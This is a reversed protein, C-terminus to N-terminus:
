GHVSCRGGRGQVWAAPHHVLSLGPVTAKCPKGSKTFGACIVKYGSRHWGLYDERSVGYHESLYGVPDGAYRILESSTLPITAQGSPNDHTVYFGVQKAALDNVVEILNKTVGM